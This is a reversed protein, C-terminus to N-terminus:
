FPVNGHNSHAIEAMFASRSREPFTRPQSLLLQSLFNTQLTKILVPEKVSDSLGSINIFLSLVLSTGVIIVSLM